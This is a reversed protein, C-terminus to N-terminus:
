SRCSFLSCHHMGTVYKVLDRSTQAYELTHLRYLSSQVLEKNVQLQRSSTCLSPDDAICHAVAYANSGSQVRLNLLLLLLWDVICFPSQGLM